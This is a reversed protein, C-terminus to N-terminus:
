ATQAELAYALLREVSARRDGVAAFRARAEASQSTHLADDTALAAARELFAADDAVQFASSVVRGVDGTPHTVVPLGEALAFAASGGGGQRRPNLYATALRYLARVDAVDGLSRARGANRLALLRDPLSDVKGAFAVQADPLRDLLDDVLALFDAGVEQDLRNGVTVFLPRGEALGFDTRTQAGGGPPLTWGFAYPRFRAALDAPWGDTGDGEDYGLILRGLTLPLGSSTPLCIVPRAGAFLDAIVNSSGFAVIVDPDWADVRDVIAQLKEEDFRKQPFSIMPVRAGFAAITQEGQYDETVNYSYEPVFGNEGTIAMANPNIIVVERGFEDQLRRAYDFADATPQHGEGLMQNTILAVRKIEGRPQARRMRGALRFRRITEEVMLRYFRMLDDSTFRGVDGTRVAGQFMQMAMGWFAYHISPISFHMPEALVARTLAEYHALDGSLLFLLSRRRMVDGMAYGADVEAAAARRTEDDYRRILGALSNVNSWGEGQNTLLTLARAFSLAAERTRGAAHLAHGLNAHLLPSTQDGAVAQGILDAAEAPRGGQLAIVGLLHLADPHGPSSALVERYLREAEATRGARHHETAVTLTQEITDM